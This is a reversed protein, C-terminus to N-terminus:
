HEQVLRLPLGWALEVWVVEQIGIPTEHLPAGEQREGGTVQQGEAKVLRESAGRGELLLGSVRCPAKTEREPRRTQTPFLRAM